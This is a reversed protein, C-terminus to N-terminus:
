AESREAGTPIVTNIEHPVSGAAPSGYRRGPMAHAMGRAPAPRPGDGPITVAPLLGRQARQGAGTHDAAGSGYSLQISRQGGFASTTLEFRAPHAM